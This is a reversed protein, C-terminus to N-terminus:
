LVCHPELYSLYRPVHKRLPSCVAKFLIGTAGDIFNLNEQSPPSVINMGVFDVRTCSYYYLTSNQWKNIDLLWNQLPTM